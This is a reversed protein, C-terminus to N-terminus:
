MLLLPVLMPVKTLASITAPLTGNFHNTQLLLMGTLTEALPSANWCTPLEGYLTCEALILDSLKAMGCPFGTASNSLFGTINTNANLNLMILEKFNILPVTSIDGKLDNGPLELWQVRQVGDTGTICKTV